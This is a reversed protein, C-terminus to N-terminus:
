SLVADTLKLIDCQLRNTVFKQASKQRWLPCLAAKPRLWFTFTPEQSDPSFCFASLGKKQFLSMVDSFYLRQLRFALSCAFFCSTVGKWNVQLGIGATGDKNDIFQSGHVMWEKIM